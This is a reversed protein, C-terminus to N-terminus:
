VPEHVMMHVFCHGPLSEPPGLGAPDAGVTMNPPWAHAAPSCDGVASVAGSVLIINRNANSGYNTGSVAADVGYNSIWPGGSSGGTM